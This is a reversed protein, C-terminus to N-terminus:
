KDKKAEDNADVTKSDGAVQETPAAPVPKPRSQKYPPQIEKGPSLLALLMVLFLAIGLILAGVSWPHYKMMAAMFREVAGEVGKKGATRAKLSKDEVATVFDNVNLKYTANQWYKKVPVDLVFVQPLEAPVIEFQKLFKQFVKGDMWGYYYKNRVDEPGNLAYLALQEKAMEVQSKDDADVVGIVVPRGNRGVKQFNLGTLRAVTPVQNETCYNLVNELTLDDDWKDYCRPPVNQELRCLFPGSQGFESPDQGQYLMFTSFAMMKRAVKQYIQTLLASQLKDDLSHEADNERNANPHYAVFALGEDVENDIIDMAEQKSNVLRVQPHHFKNAFAVIDAASRGMPYDHIEGDLAFKLTPYGKVGHQDCLQKQQTCDITGIAMKGQLQPAVQELVPTLQKCHGCWPAYFKLFWLPNVADHLATSFDDKTLAVPTSPVTQPEYSQTAASSYRM